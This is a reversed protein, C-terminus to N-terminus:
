AGVDVFGGRRWGSWRRLSTAWFYLAVADVTGERGSRCVMWGMMVAEWACGSMGQCIVVKVMALEGKKGMSAYWSRWCATEASVNRALMARKRLRVYESDPIVM